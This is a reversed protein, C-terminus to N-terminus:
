LYSDEETFPQHGILLSQAPCWLRHGRLKLQANGQAPGMHSKRESVPQRQWCLFGSFSEPLHPPPFTPVELIRGGVQCYELCWEVSRRAGEREQILGGLGAQGGHPIPPSGEPDYGDFLEWGPASTM